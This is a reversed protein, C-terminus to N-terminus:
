LLVKPEHRIARMLVSLYSTSFEAFEHYGARERLVRRLAPLQHYPINTYWHHEAHYHFNLPAFFFREMLSSRFTRLRETGPAANPRILHEAINRFQTFGKTLTVLPLLWLFFYLFPHGVTYFLLFIIGQACAIQFLHSRGGSSSPGARFFQFVAGYGSFERLVKKLFDGRAAPFPKYNAYDPDMDTGLNRHHAFHTIRYDLSFGIPYSLLLSGVVDNMRHDSYLLGHVAEHQLISIGHQLAAVLVIAPIVWWSGLWLALMTVLFISGYIRLIGFTARWGNRQSLRKMEESTLAPRKLIDIDAM